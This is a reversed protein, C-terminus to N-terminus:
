VELENSVETKKHLKPKKPLDSGDEAVERGFRYIWLPCDTIPCLRVEVLDGASCDICKARIAKARTLREM